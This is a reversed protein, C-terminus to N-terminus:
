IKKLANLFERTIVIDGNWYKLLVDQNIRIWRQAAELVAKSPLWASKEWLEQNGDIFIVASNSENYKGSYLKIRPRHGPVKPSAFVIKDMGTDEKSLVAMDIVRSLKKYDM